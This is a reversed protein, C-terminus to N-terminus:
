PEWSVGQLIKLIFLASFVGLVAFLFALSENARFTGAPEPVTCPAHGQSLSLTSYVHIIQGRATSVRSRDIVVFCYGFGCQKKTVIGNRLYVDLM